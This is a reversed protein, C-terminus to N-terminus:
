LCGYEKFYDFFQFWQDPYKKVFTELYKAFAQVYEKVFEEESGNEKVIIEESLYPIYGRKDRILCGLVSRSHTRFALVAAGRPFKVRRGCFEVCVGDHNIDRDSVISAIEGEKLAKYVGVIGGKFPHVVVNAKERLTQYIKEIDSDPQALGIAHARYGLYGVVFASLEWNGLHASLIILSSDSTLESLRDRVSEPDTFRTITSRDKYLFSMLDRLGIIFNSYNKLTLKWLVPLEVDGLIARLNNCVSRREQPTFLFAFFGFFYSLATTLFRPLLVVLLIGLRYWFYLV